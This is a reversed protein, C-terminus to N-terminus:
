ALGGRKRLLWEGTLLLALVLLVWPDNWLAYELREQVVGKGEGFAEIVRMEEGPLVVLGASGKALIDLTERRPQVDGMEVPRRTETVLFSTKVSPRADDDERTVELTYAGGSPLPPLSAEYFGNGAERPSLEFRSAVGADDSTIVATLRADKVGEYSEDLLRAMVIVPDEPTYVLRDSGARFNEAGARLREGLGWRLVQGWFRHHRTDGIRYRLRWTRDFAMGLVKGRGFSQTAILARRNRYNMREELHAVAQRADTVVEEPREEPSVAISLVESGPKATVPLRWHFSEVSQWLEENELLSGSQIMVPHSRGITTLELKFAPEPATWYDPASRVTFPALKAIASEDAYAHPMAGPGGILVLLAGRDAVCSRIRQQVSDPLDAPAIDGLIIVDFARWAEESVPWGGAEADGFKRAASAAPLAAPDAGEIRDPNILWSQLHVSKDRGFFLNRLYRFEWRAVSDVLLVNIRDDSVAVDSRWTNNDHFLEGDLSEIRVTYRMVCNNTPEHSLRLERQWDDSSIDIDLEDLIEESETLTLKVRRGIAGSAKVTAVFRVKDGLFISEPALVDALALDFPRRSGGIHVAGVTVGQAALRRALPQVSADANHIGDSLLLVGALEESPIKQLVEEVARAFDTASRFYAANFGPDSPAPIGKDADEPSLERLGRGFAFLDVDYRQGLRELLVAGSHDPRTLLSCALALRTTSCADLVADRRAQDLAQWADAAAVTNSLVDSLTAAPILGARAAFGLTERPQWQRDIFRMSTSEDVLVAVRRTIKKDLYRILVPQMLILAVIAIAAARLLMVLRGLAPSVVRRELELAILATEVGGGMMLAALWLPWACGYVVFRGLAQLFCWAAIFAFLLRPLAAVRPAKAAFRRIVARMVLYVGAASVAMLVVLWTAIEAPLLDIRVSDM